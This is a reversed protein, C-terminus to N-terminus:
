AGNRHVPIMIEPINKKKTWIVQARNYYCNKSEFENTGSLSVQTMQKITKKKKKLNETKRSTKEELLKKKKNEVVM